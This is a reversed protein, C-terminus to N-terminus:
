KSKKVYIWWYVMACLIGGGVFNGLTVSILNETFFTGWNLKALLDASKGSAEVAKPFSQSFIGAPIFYMNAIAHEFGSTVFAMIPFFIAFIKGGIDKAAVAMMVALCVLWNCGIARFFYMLNHSAGGDVTAAVKGYAINIASGGVDGGTLGSMQAIMWALFISGVINGFYVIVWNRLLQGLTIDKNMLGIMMLNNGTWLESGPIIVLMLGVSFVAGIFFKKLGFLATTGGITWGTGVVTALHAAFGIFVGALIGLVFLKIISNGAKAKSVGIFANSLEKPTLFNNM